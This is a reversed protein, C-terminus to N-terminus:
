AILYIYLEGHTNEGFVVSKDKILREGYEDICKQVYDKGMDRQTYAFETGVYYDYVNITLTTLPDIVNLLEKVKM